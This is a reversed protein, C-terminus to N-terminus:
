RYNSFKNVASAINPVFVTKGNISKYNGPYSLDVSNSTPYSYLLSSIANVSSISTNTDVKTSSSRHLAVIDVQYIKNTIKAMIAKIMSLTMQSRQTSSYGQYDFIKLADDGKISQNGKLLLINDDNDKIDVLINYNIGSIYDIIYSIDELDYIACSEFDFGTIAQMKKTLFTVGLNRYIDNLTMERGKITVQLNSPVYTYTFEKRKSDGRLIIFDTAEIKKSGISDVTLSVNKENRPYRAVDYASYEGAKSPIYNTNIILMSFSSEKETETDTSSDNEKEDEEDEIALHNEAEVGFLPGLCEILIGSLFYAIAGFVVGSILLAVIFNRLSRLM